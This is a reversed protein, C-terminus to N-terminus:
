GAVRSSGVVMFLSLAVCQQGGRVKVLSTEQSTSAKGTVPNVLFQAADEDSMNDAM